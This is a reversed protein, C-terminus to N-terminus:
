PILGALKLIRDLVEDRHALFAENKLRFVKFGQSTLWADREADAAPDHFPGDLEIVLRHRFCVFDVIYRGLPAQRRFKIAGLRRDRLLRWAHDETWAPSKRM